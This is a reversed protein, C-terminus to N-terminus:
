SESWTRTETTFRASPRPGQPTFSQGELIMSNVAHQEDTLTM